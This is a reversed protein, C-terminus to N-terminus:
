RVPLYILRHTESDRFVPIEEKGSWNALMIRESGMMDNIKEIPFDWLEAFEKIINMRNQQKKIKQKNLWDHIFGKKNSFDTYQHYLIERICFAIQEYVLRNRIKEDQPGIDIKPEQTATGKTFTFVSLIVMRGFSLKNEIDGEPSRIGVVYEPIGSVLPCSKSHGKKYDQACYICYKVM